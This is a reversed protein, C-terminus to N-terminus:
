PQAQVQQLETGTTLEIELQAIASLGNQVVEVPQSLCLLPGQRDVVGQVVKDTMGLEAAPFAQARLHHLSQQAHLSKVLGAQQAPRHQQDISRPQEEEVRTM